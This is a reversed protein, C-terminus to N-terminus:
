AGVKEEYLNFLCTLRQDDSDFGGKRYINDIVEDLQKHAIMLDTPMSDPDYLFAIPKDPHKERAGLVAASANLIDMKQRENIEPIPFANYCIGVSYRIRTEMKGSVAKVWISHMRSSVVGFIYPEPDFLVNLANTVVAENSLIGIPLYDRRESSTFPIVIQTDVCEKHMFFQHPRDKCSYAIKGAGERFARTKDIREKIKSISQAEPLDKDYIWLVWRDIGEIFESAGLIKRIFKESRDDSGIIEDRESKNLFLHGGERPDNGASM